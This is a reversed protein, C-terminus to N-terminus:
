VGALANVGQESLTGTKARVWGKGAASAGGQFRGELTNDGLTSGAIPLGYLLPRLAAVRPDSTNPNAAVRLVQALLSASLSDSPSLGCRDYLTASTTSFGHKRLVDLVAETAGDFSAPKHDAIAVARGMTEALVNDSIQLLNTVLDPVPASHVEGLIK